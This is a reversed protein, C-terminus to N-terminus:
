WCCRDIVTWSIFTHLHMGHPSWWTRSCSVCSKRWSSTSRHTSLNMSMCTTHAFWPIPNHIRTSMTTLTTGLTVGQCLRPDSVGFVDYSCVWKSLITIVCLWTNCWVWPYLGYHSLQTGWCTGSWVIHKSQGVTAPSMSPWSLGQYFSLHLSISCNMYRDARNKTYHEEIVSDWWM